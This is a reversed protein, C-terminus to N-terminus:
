DFQLFIIMYTVTLSLMTLLLNPTITYLKLPSASLQDKRVQGYFAAMVKRQNLNLNYWHAHQWAALRLVLKKSSYYLNSQLLTCFILKVLYATFIGVSVIIARDITTSERISRLVSYSSVSIMFFKVGCDFVILKGFLFDAQQVLLRLSDYKSWITHLTRGEPDLHTRASPGATGKEDPSSPHPKLQNNTQIFVDQLAEQIARVVYGSHCYVFAPVLDSLLQFIVVLFFVSMQFFDLFRETFTKIFLERYTLLYIQHDDNIVMYCAGFLTLLSAFGFTLYIIILNNKKIRALYPSHQDELYRFLKFFSLLSKSLFLFYLLIWCTQVLPVLWYYIAVLSHVTSFKMEKKPGQRTLFIVTQYLEFVTMFAVTSITLWIVVFRYATALCVADITPQCWDFLIGLFQTMRWLPRLSDLLFNGKRTMVGDDRKNCKIRAAM